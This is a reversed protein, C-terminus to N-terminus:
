NGYHEIAHCNHCLLECKNIEALITEWGYCHDVMEPVQRKKQTPDIHHFCLCPRRGEGCRNCSKGTLYEELKARLVNRRKDRAEKTIQKGNEKRYRRQNELRKEKNEPNSLWKKTNKIQREKNVKM